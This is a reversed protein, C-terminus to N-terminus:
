DLKLDDVLSLFIYNINEDTFQSFFRLFMHTQNWCNISYINNELKCSKHNDLEQLLYNPVEIKNVANKDLIRYRFRVFCTTTENNDIDKKINYKETETEYNFIKLTNLFCKKSKDNGIEYGIYVNDPSPNIIKDLETLQELETTHDKVYAGFKGTIRKAQRETVEVEKPQNLNVGVRKFYEFLIKM